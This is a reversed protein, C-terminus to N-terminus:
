IVLEGMERALKQLEKGQKFSEWSVQGFISYM